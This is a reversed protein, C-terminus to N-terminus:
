GREGKLVDELSAVSVIRTWLLATLTPFPVSVRLKYGQLLVARSVMVQLCGSATYLSVM